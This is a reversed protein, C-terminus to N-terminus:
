DLRNAKFQNHDRLYGALYGLAGTLVAPILTAWIDM